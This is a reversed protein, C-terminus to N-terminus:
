TPRAWSWLGPRRAIEAPRHDLPITDMHANLELSRGGGVGPLTAVVSPTGPFEDFVQIALGMGRLVDLFSDTAARTDGTYSRIRCLDLTLRAVREAEVAAMVREAANSM